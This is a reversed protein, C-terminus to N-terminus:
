DKGYPGALSNDGDAITGFYHSGGLEQKGGNNPPYLHDNNAELQGM